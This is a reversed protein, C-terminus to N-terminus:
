PTVTITIKKSVITPLHTTDQHDGLQLILTHTGPSLTVEAETQGNSFHLSQADDPILSGPPIPDRDILLHHHATDPWDVLVPAVGMGKLGFKVTVPSKVTAGDAPEIFYVAAGAPASMQAAAPLSVVALMAALAILVRMM